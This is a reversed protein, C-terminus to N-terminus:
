YWLCNGTVLELHSPEHTAQKEVFKQYAEDNIGPLHVMGIVNVKNYMNSIFENCERYRDLSGSEIASQRETLLEDLSCQSLNKM